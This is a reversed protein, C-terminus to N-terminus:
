KYGHRRVNDTYFQHMGEVDRISREWRYCFKLKVGDVINYMGDKEVVYYPSRQRSNNEYLKINDFWIPMMNGEYNMINMRNIGEKVLVIGFKSYGTIEPYWKDLLYRKESMNLINFGNRNGVVVNDKYDNLVTEYVENHPVGKKDLLCGCLRGNKEYETFLFGFTREYIGEGEGSYAESGDPAIVACRKMRNPMLDCVAYYGYENVTSVDDHWKKCHVNGNPDLINMKYNKDFIVTYPNDLPYQYDEFYPGTIHKEGTKLVARINMIKVIDFNDRHFVNQFIDTPSIGMELKREADAVADKLKTNPKFTEYFNRGIIDSIQKTSLASDSSGNAHNWRTTSQTMQGDPDVIVTMMSLGYSDFPTDPGTQRPEDEFGDRLILYLQNIGDSTYQNYMGEGDDQALCWDNYKGYPQIQEFSDIRIIRYDSKEMYQNRSLEQKDREMDQQRVSAFRGILDQASMGNLNRDYQNIHTSDAVYKLTSNIRAITNADGLEGDLFMRTVGLIFKGAQKSRLIPIDGRLTMRVFEDAEEHSRGTREMFLKVAESISKSEQSETLLAEKMIFTISESIIGHLESYTLIAM